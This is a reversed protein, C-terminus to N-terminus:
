EGNVRFALYLDGSEASSFIIRPAINGQNNQFVTTDATLEAASLSQVSLFGSLLLSSLFTMKTM